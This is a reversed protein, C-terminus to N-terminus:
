QVKTTTPRVWEQRGSAALATGVRSSKGAAAAAYTLM